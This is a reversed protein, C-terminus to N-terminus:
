APLFAPFVPVAVAPSNSGEADVALSANSVVVATVTSGNTPDQATIRITYNNTLDFFPPLSANLPAPM